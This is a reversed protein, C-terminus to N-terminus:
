SSLLTAAYLSDTGICKAYPFGGANKITQTFGILLFKFNQTLISKSKDNLM